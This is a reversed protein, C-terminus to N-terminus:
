CEFDCPKRVVVERNAQYPKREYSVEQTTKPEYVTKYTTRKYVVEVPERVTRVRAACPSAKTCDSACSAMRRYTGQSCDGTRANCEEGSFLVTRGKETGCPTSNSECGTVLLLAALTVLGFLTSRM